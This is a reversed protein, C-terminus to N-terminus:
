YRVSKVKGDLGGEGSHRAPITESGEFGYM